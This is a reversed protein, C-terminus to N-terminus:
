VKQMAALKPPGRSAWFKLSSEESLPPHRWLKYCHTTVATVIFYGM